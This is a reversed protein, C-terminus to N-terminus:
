NWKHLEVEMTHLDNKFNHKAQEILMAQAVGDGADSLDVYIMQGARVGPSGLASIRLTKLPANYYSLTTKAQETMQADNLSGNIKQYLQLMGWQSIHESDQAIYVDSRGTAENPRSLKVSNYTQKDISLGYRYDTVLSKGGLMVPAVMNAAETLSLGDGNDYFNYVRGTALLTDQLVDEVIDLVNQNDQITSPIRYGTDELEGTDLQYDEAIQRIIEGATLDYFAYSANVKLYRLRDYCTVELKGWRDETVAFVWGFFVLTGDATFRVRDGMGPSLGGGKRATFKLVGPSGTRNTTYSVEETCGSAEYVRGSEGSAILLEYSM